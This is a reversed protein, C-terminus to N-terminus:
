NSLIINHITENRTEIIQTAIEKLDHRLKEYNTYGGLEFFKLDEIKDCWEEHEDDPLFAPKLKDIDNNTILFFIHNTDNFYQDNDICHQCFEQYEKLCWNTTDPPNVFSKWEILQIFNFSKRCHERIEKGIDDGCKINKWDNFEPFVNHDFFCRALVRALYNTKARDALSPLEPYVQKILKKFAENTISADRNTYSLFYSHWNKIITSKMNYINIHDDNWINNLFINTILQELIKRKITNDVNPRDVKDKLLYLCETVQETHDNYNELIFDIELRQEKVRNYNNKYSEMEILDQYNSKNFAKLILKGEDSELDDITHNSFLKILKDLAKM